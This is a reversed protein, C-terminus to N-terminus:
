VPVVAVLCAFAPGQEAPNTVTLDDAHDLFELDVRFLNDSVEFRKWM